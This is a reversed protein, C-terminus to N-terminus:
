RATSRALAAKLRATIPTSFHRLALPHAAATRAARGIDKDNIAQVLDLFAAASYLNDLRRKQATRDEPSMHDHWRRFIRDEGAIIARVEQATLHRSISDARSRYIYGASRVRKYRAGALLAEAVIQYDEGIRLREDYRIQHNTLFARRFLPKLYGLLPPRQFLRNQLVFQPYTVTLVEGDLPENLHFAAAVDPQSSMNTRQLNDAVIDAKSARAVDLLTALRGAAYLDDADLVAIWDGQALEIAVNRAGGPGRNDPLRVYRVRDDGLSEAIDSMNDPSHDDVVIVEVPPGAQALASKLADALFGRANWAPIIISVLNQSPV